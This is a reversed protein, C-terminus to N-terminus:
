YYNSINWKYLIKYKSCKEYIYVCVICIEKRKKVKKKKKLLLYVPMARLHCTCKKKCLFCQYLIWFSARSPFLKANVYVEEAQRCVSRKSGSIAHPLFSEQIALHLFLSSFPPFTLLLLPLPSFILFCLLQQCAKISKIPELHGLNERMPSSRQDEERSSRQFPRRLLMSEM